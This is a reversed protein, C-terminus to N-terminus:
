VQQLQPGEPTFTVRMGKAIEDQFLDALVRLADARGRAAFRSASTIRANNDFGDAAHAWILPHLETLYDRVLWFSAEAIEDRKMDAKASLGKGAPLAVTCFASLLNIMDQGPRAEAIDRLGDLLFPVDVNACAREDIAIADFYVWTYGGAGWIDQLRAATRRAELELQDYSGFWRPLMHNGLARMHRQNCPDLDILDEYMDAIQQASQKEGTLLACEAAALIPSSMEIFCFPQVLCRAREFHATFVERNQKQILGEPGTGRWAWAIDLHALAVVLTIYPDDRFDQLVEDLMQIGETMPLDTDDTQLAHEVANVADSRAGFALLEAVPMGGPTKLRSKDAHKIEASLEEWRDQRALFQGREQAAASAADDTSHNCVAIDLMDQRNDANQFKPAVLALPEVPEPTPPLGFRSKFALVLPFLSDWAKSSRHLM